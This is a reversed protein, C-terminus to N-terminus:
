FNFVFISFSSYSDNALSISLSSLCVMTLFKSYCISSFCLFAYATFFLYISSFNLSLSSSFSISILSCSWFYISVNTLSYIARLSFSNLVWALTLIYLIRLSRWSFNSRSILSSSAMSLSLTWFSFASIARSLDLSFMLTLFSSSATLYSSSLSTAFSLSKWFYLVSICSSSTAWLFKFLVHIFSLFSAGEGLSSDKLFFLDIEDPRLELDPIFVRGRELSLLVIPPPPKLLALPAM